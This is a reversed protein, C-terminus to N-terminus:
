IFDCEQYRRTSRSMKLGKILFVLKSGRSTVASTKRALEVTKAAGGLRLGAWTDWSASPLSPAPSRPPVRSVLLRSDLFCLGWCDREVPNNTHRKTGDLPQPHSTRPVGSSVEMCRVGDFTVAKYIRIHSAHSAGLGKGQVEGFLRGSGASTQKRKVGVCRCSAMFMNSVQQSAGRPRRGPCNLRSRSSCLGVSLSLSLVGHVDQVALGQILIPFLVQRSERNAVKINGRSERPM